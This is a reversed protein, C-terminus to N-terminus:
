EPCIKANEACLRIAADDNAWRAEVLLWRFLTHALLHHRRRNYLWVAYSTVDSYIGSFSGRRVREGGLAYSRSLAQQLAAWELWEEIEPRGREAVVRARLPAIRAELEEFLRECVQDYVRELIVSDGLAPELPLEHALAAATLDHTALDLTQELLERKPESPEAPEDRSLLWEEFEDWARAAIVLRQVPQAQEGSHLAVLFAKHASLARLLPTGETPPTLPGPALQPSQLARELLARTARRHPAWAHLLRLSRNSPADPEAVLRAALAGLLRAFKSARSAVSKSAHFLRALRRFHGRRAADAALWTSAVNRAWRDFIRPPSSILMEFLARASDHDGRLARLLAYAVIGRAGRPVGRTLQAELETLTEAHTKNPQEHRALALAAVAVAAAGREADLATLQMVRLAGRASGRRVWPWAFWRAPGFALLTAALGIILTAAMRLPRGSPAAWLFVDFVLLGLWLRLLAVWAVTGDPDRPTSPVRLM